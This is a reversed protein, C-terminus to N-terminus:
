KTRLIDNFLRAIDKERGDFARTVFNDSITGAYEPPVRWASGGSMTGGGSRGRPATDPNYRYGIVIVSQGKELLWNLWHLDTGKNTTVHGSKLALLNILSDPQISLVL